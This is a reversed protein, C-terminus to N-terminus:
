WYPLAHNFDNADGRRLVSSLMDEIRGMSQLFGTEKDTDQMM